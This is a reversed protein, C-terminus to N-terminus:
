KPSGGTFLFRSRFQRKLHPADQVLHFPNDNELTSTCYAFFNGPPLVVAKDDIPFVKRSAMTPSVTLGKTHGVYLCVHNPVRQKQTVCAHLGHGSM